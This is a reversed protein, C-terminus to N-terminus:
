RLMCFMEYLVMVCNIVLYLAAFCCLWLWVCVQGGLHEDGYVMWGGVCCTLFTSTVLGTAIGLTLFNKAVLGHWTLLLGFFLVHWAVDFGLLEGTILASNNMSVERMQSGVVQITLLLAGFCFAYIILSWNGAALYQMAEKKKDKAQGVVVINHDEEEEEEEEEGGADEEKHATAETEMNKEEIDMDLEEMNEQLEISELCNYFVISKGSVIEMGHKLMAKNLLSMGIGTCFMGVGRGLLCVVVVRTVYNNSPLQFLTTEGVAMISGLLGGLAFLGRFKDYFWLNQHVNLVFPIAIGGHIAFNISMCIMHLSKGDFITTKNQDALRAPENLVICVAELPVSINFLIVGISTFLTSIRTLIPLSRRTCAIHFLTPKISSFSDLNFKINQIINRPNYCRLLVAIIIITIKILAHTGSLFNDLMALSTIARVVLFPTFIMSVMIHIELFNDLNKLAVFGPTIIAAHHMAITYSKTFSPLFTNFVVANTNSSSSTSTRSVTELLFISCSCIVDMILGIHLMTRLRSKNKKATLITCLTLRKRGGIKTILVTLLACIVACFFLSSFVTPSYTDITHFGTHHMAVISIILEGTAAASLLLLVILLGYGFFTVNTLWWLISLFLTLGCHAINELSLADAVLFTSLTAPDNPTASGFFPLLATVTFKLLSIMACCIVALPLQPLPKSTTCLQCNTQSAACKSQCSPCIWDQKM